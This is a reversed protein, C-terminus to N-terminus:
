TKHACISQFQKIFLTRVFLSYFFMLRFSFTFTSATIGRTRDGRVHTTIMWRPRDNEIPELSRGSSVVLLRIAKQKTKSGILSAM